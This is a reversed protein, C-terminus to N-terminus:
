TNDQLWQARQLLRRQWDPTLGPTDAVRRLLALSPRTAKRVEWFCKLSVPDPNRAIRVLTDGPQVRGPRLVRFYWGAMGEAEIFAAMGEVGHRVDIKWCPSRPQSVQLEASGLAFVDGIGVAGEDLGQSTLNEGMAGAVLGGAASPFRARLRRYHEVPFLHVAKEPGGHVRRDAQHDGAFGDTDLWVPGRVPEKFIGTPRGDDPMSRIAGIFITPVHTQM